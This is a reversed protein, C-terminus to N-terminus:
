AEAGAPAAPAIPRSMRAVPVEIGDPLSLTFRQDLEFGLARYLPEGPLTAVLALRRFGAARAAAECRDYLRRGLGRRAWDPHVFFARIRAAERGPDLLPDDAQKVRDGGYLTRRRSWGGAAVLEDSGTEIVFYSGDRVLQTDVGFVHRLLSAVQAETYFGVSLERASRAILAEIAPLDHTCAARLTLPDSTPSATM